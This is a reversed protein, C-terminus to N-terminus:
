STQAKTKRLPIGSIGLASYIAKETLGPTTCYRLTVTGGQAKALSTTVVSHKSLQCRLTSWRHHIGAKRCLHQIYNLLHYALVSIFLHGQIREDKRHHIPRLGLDSKLCRFADEVTTLMIYLKWLQEASLDHRDSRLFYSGDYPKALNDAQFSWTLELPADQDPSLSIQFGKSVRGYRERLRGIREMVKERTHSKRGKAVMDALHALEKEMGAKMKDVIAAEKALKGQSLCHVFVEDGVRMSGVSVGPRIEEMAPAEPFQPHLRSVVLYSFGQQRLARCNDETAIGADMVVTPQSGSLFDTAEQRLGSVADLLTSSESINGELIRSCKVFGMEDLVLGLTVLPRDFRKDKSWGRATLPSGKAPGEFYTNTLDYLVITESLCFLEKARVRLHEELAAKHSFLLDSARYLSNQSLHSFDTGLLLDMASDEMAWRKLERESGPHLLRGIILLKALNSESKGFGLRKFLGDFGLARMAALGAHEGGVSKPCSTELSDLDVNEMDPRPQVLEETAQGLRNQQIIGVFHRALLEIEESVPALLSVHGGLIEEIRNALVKWQLKPISLTGLELVLNQRPGEPGRVSEVLRHYVFEKPSNPNKKKIERIYM